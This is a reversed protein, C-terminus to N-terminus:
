RGGVEARGRVFRELARLHAEAIRRQVSPDRLANEQQPVMMFMTESLVSPMWTPRALALDARGIGIDRLRLETLLEAQVAKALDLSHPQYYYVSTGNNQFPNVGDPFANNHLSVLIDADMEAALRPRSGLDVPMPDTRIMLVSAGAAELMPQLARAVALNAEAETLGTPGTGGGPPHGADVAILLGELPREADIAPPRRITVVLANTPDYSTAYGWVPETLELDIVFEGTATQSWAAREVLPDLGGYQMFNVESTAGYVTIRLTREGGDVRFPLRTGTMIRLDIVDERPTMRVGTVTSEPPPTGPPLLLVDGASTWASLGDTLRVRYMGDREADLRLQTGAHWFWHFPGGRGPRGRATWDAPANAPARVVGTRVVPQELPVVTSRLPLRFTDSAVVLEFVAHATDAPVVPDSLTPFRTTSDVSIWGDEIAVVREYRSVGRAIEAAASSTRFDAASATGADHIPREIMPLRRGGPLVLTATGGATGDFAVELPEFAPLSIAGRPQDSDTVFAQGEDLVPLSPLIVRRFLTATDTGTTASLNYIGDSPVPLFALWAGNPAVPVETGNVRLRARGSGTAGFIFNSDAATIRLSDPPYIVTIRLPGDAPEIAPLAPGAEVPTLAPPEIAPRSGGCGSSAATAAALALPRALSLASARDRVSASM